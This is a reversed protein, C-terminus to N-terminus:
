MFVKNVSTTSEKIRDANDHITSINSHTLRVHCVDAIRESKKL